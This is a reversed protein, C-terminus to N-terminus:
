RPLESEPRVVSLKELRLAENEFQINTRMKSITDIELGKEMDVRYAYGSLNLLLGLSFFVGSFLFLYHILLVASDFLRVVSVRIAQTTALDPANKSAKGEAIAGSSSSVDRDNNDGKEEMSLALPPSPGRHPRPSLLPASLPTLRSGCSTSLAFASVGPSPMAAIALLLWLLIQTGMM